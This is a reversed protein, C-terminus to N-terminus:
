SGRRDMFQGLCKLKVNLCRGMEFVGLCAGSQGGELRIHNNYHGIAQQQGFRNQINGVIAAQIHMGRQQRAPPPSGGDLPGDHRPILFATHGNHAHFLPKIGARDRQLRAARDGGIHGGSLQM